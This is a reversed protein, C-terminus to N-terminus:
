RYVKEKNSRFLLKSFPSLILSKSIINVKAIDDAFMVYWFELNAFTLEHVKIAFCKCNKLDNM